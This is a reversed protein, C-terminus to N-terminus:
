SGFARHLNTSKAGHRLKEESNIHIGNVGNLFLDHKIVQFFPPEGEFVRGALDADIQARDPAPYKVTSAATAESGDM